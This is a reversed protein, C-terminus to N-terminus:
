KTTRNSISPLRNTGGDELVGKPNLTVSCVTSIKTPQFFVGGAASFKPLPQYYYTVRYRTTAAGGISFRHWGIVDRLFAEDRDTYCVEPLGLQLRRWYLSNAFYVRDSSHWSLREGAHGTFPLLESTGDPGVAEVTFWHEGLTLDHKNFVDIPALAYAESVWRLWAAPPRLGFIPYHAVFIVALISHIAIFASFLARPTSNRPKTLGNIPTRADRAANYDPAFECVGFWRIRRDAVLRYILRGLGTVRGVFFIPVLWLLLVLRKSVEAYFDYGRYIRQREGDHGYLDRLVEDTSLGLRQVLAANKTLPCFRLARFVDVRSLFRVTRDCLNCRDDYLVDLRSTDSWVIFKRDWFLLAALVFEYYGLWGLQLLFTSVLFFLLSWIIVAKRFWGGLLTFPLFVLYWVLMGWMSIRTLLIFLESSHALSQFFGYYKSLYSNTLLITAVYGNRWLEDDLHLLVSYLCLVSYSVLTTWKALVLRDVSPTGFFIYIARVLGSLRSHGGAIINDASIRTGSPAFTFTLLLMSFVISGLTYTSFFTDIILVNGFLLLLSMIPTFLGITFLAGIVLTVICAIKLSVGDNGGFVYLTTYWTRHLFILGSAIRLLDIKTAEAELPASFLGRRLLFESWRTYARRLIDDAATAWFLLTLSFLLALAILFPLATAMTLAPV